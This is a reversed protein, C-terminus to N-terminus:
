GRRQFYLEFVILCAGLLGITLFNGIKLLRLILLGFVGLSILFGRRSNGLLIASTLFIALLLPIFFALYTVPIFSIKSPSDPSLGILVMAWSIWAAVTLIFSFLFRKKGRVM